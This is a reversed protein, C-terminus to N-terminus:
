VANELINRLRSWINELILRQPEEKESTTYNMAGKARASHQPATTAGYPCRPQTARVFDSRQRKEFKEFPVQNNDAWSILARLLTEYHKVTKTARTAQLHLLFGQFADNWTPSTFDKSM